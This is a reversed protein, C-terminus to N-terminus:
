RISYPPKDIKSEIEKLAAEKEKNRIAQKYYYNSFFEIIFVAQLASIDPATFETKKKMEHQLQSCFSLWFRYSFAGATESHKLCSELGSRIQSMTTKLLGERDTFQGSLRTFFFGMNHGSELFAAVKLLSISLIRRPIYSALILASGLSEPFIIRLLPMDTQQPDNMYEEMDPVINLNRIHEPPVDIGLTKEDPFPIHALSDIDRYIENVIEFYFDVILVKAAGKGDILKCKGRKVLGDIEAWVKANVNYTWKKWAIEKRDHRRAYKELFRAFEGVTVVPFNLKRAYFVLITYLDTSELM